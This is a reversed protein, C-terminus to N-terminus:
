GQLPLLIRVRYFGGQSAASFDAAVDHMLRLRERVNRLAMGHGATRAGAIERPLTNVVSVEVQSGRVRTRVKMAGGEAAPEIGHRVANEVLPQLLLSPLRAENANEDLEWNIELRGGFRIQEIDLYRRALEIEEGLTSSADPGGQVLAARFLEALDELVAEARPPDVRVLAVAINLTNFLFHPRIRAQLETLRASAAAPLQLRSRQVLWHFFAASMAAGAAAAALAQMAGTEFAAGQLLWWSAVAVTAGLGVAVSWRVGSSRAALVHKLLCLTILWALVAPFTVASAGAFNRLWADIGQSVLATAILATGHVFLVARLVVGVHCVDFSTVAAQRQAALMDFGTAGFGTSTTPSSAVSIESPHVDQTRTM